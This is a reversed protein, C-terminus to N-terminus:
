PAPPASPVGAPQGALDLLLQGRARAGPPTEPDVILEEAWRRTDDLNGAKWAALALIERASHRWANGNAALPEVRSAVDAQSGTDVLALAARIRALDRLLAPVSIDQAIAEFRAAAAAKDTTSLETAARFRSLIAYGAPADKALAELAVEAEKANGSTSLAIAADYRAGAEQAQKASYWDYARWGSVGVVILVAAGVLVPGYRKWLRNMRERRLDEEIENFIDSM